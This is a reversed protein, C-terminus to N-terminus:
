PQLPRLFGRAGGGLRGRGIAFLLPIPRSRTAGLRAVLPMVSPQALRGIPDDIMTGALTGAASGGQTRIQRALHDAPVIPDIQRLDLRHDLAM